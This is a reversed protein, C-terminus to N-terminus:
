RSPEHSICVKGVLMAESITSFDLELRKIGAEGTTKNAAWNDSLSAKWFPSLSGLTASRLIISDEEQSSLSIVVDGTGVVIGRSGREGKKPVALSCSYNLKSYLSYDVKDCGTRSEDDSDYDPDLRSLRYDSASRDAPM